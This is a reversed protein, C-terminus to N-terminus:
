TPVNKKLKQYYWDILFVFVACLVVIITVWFDDAKYLSFSYGQWSLPFFLRIGGDAHVLFFDLIFHTTIGFGLFMITTRPKPFALALIGAVLCAGLPTHLPEFMGYSNLGLWTFALYIKVLDPILSGIVVFVFGSRFPKGMIWGVLSHTLWDAM